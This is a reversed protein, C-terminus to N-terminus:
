LQRSRPYRFSGDRQWWHAISHVAFASTDSSVGLVVSGRNARIDYIGYPIAIGKSDSRFDHDYVPRPSRDWRRGPNKFNGVQERKKSDVSIIPLHGRAFRQRLETIYDFQCSRAPSSDAALRKQNVHLSYPM